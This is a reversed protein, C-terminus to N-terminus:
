DNIYVVGNVISYIIDVYDKGVSEKASTVSINVPLTDKDTDKIRFTVEIIDRQKTKNTNSSFNLIIGNEIRNPNAIVDLDLDEDYSILELNSDYNLTIDFGCVNVTGDISVLLTVTDGVNGTASSVVFVNENDSYVARVIEDKCINIYNGSWGLFSAGSKTPNSPLSAVSGEYVEESALITIGDYDVFTVTYKNAPNEYIFTQDIDELFVGATELVECDSEDIQGNKNCDAALLFEEKFLSKSVLSNSLCKVIISDMGNYYGDGNVDGIILITYTDIKDGSSSDYVNLKVGTGIKNSVVVDVGDNTEIYQNLLETKSIGQKLGYILKLQNNIVTTSDAKSHLYTASATLLDNSDRGRNIEICYAQTCMLFSVVIALLFSIYKKM